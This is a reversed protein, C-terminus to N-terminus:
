YPGVCVGGGSRGAFLCNRYNALPDISLVIPNPETLVGYFGRCLTSNSNGPLPSSVELSNFFTTCNVCGVANYSPTCYGTIASACNENILNCFAANNTLHGSAIHALALYDFLVFIEEYYFDLTVIKSNYFKARFFHNVRLPPDTPLVLYGVQFTIAGFVTCEENATVNMVSYSHLLIYLFDELRPEMTLCFYDFIEDLGVFSKIQAVNLRPVDEGSPDVFSPDVFVSDITSRCRYLRDGLTEDPNYEAAQGLSQVITKYNELAAVDTGCVCDQNDDTTHVSHFSVLLITTLYLL